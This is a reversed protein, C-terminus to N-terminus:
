HAEAEYREPHAIIDNATDLFESEIGREGLLQIAVHQQSAGPKLYYDYKLRGNDGLYANVHMNQFKEPLHSALLLPKTYHTTSINITHPPAAVSKLYGYTGAEGEVPNTSNFIEDMIALSFQGHPLEKIRDMLEIARVSEAQFSSLGAAVEASIDMHTHILSLPTLTASAAPAIGFTQALLASIAIGEIATSKGAANPGTVLMNQPKGHGLQVSSPIAIKAPLHPNWFNQLNILPTDAREFQVFRLTNGSYDPKKILDSIAVWTDIEGVAQSIELLSNKNERLLNFGEKYAGMSMTYYSFTGPTHSPSGRLIETTKRIGPSSELQNFGHFSSLAQTFTPHKELLDAIDKAHNLARGPRRAREMLFTYANRQLTMLENASYILLAQYAIVVGTYALILTRDGETTLQHWARRYITPMLRLAERTNQTQEYGRLFAAAMSSGVVILPQLVAVTGAGFEGLRRSAELWYRHKIPVVSSTQKEIAEFHHTNIIDAPDYFAILGEEDAAYGRLHNTLKRCLDPHDLLYQLAAQRQELNNIDETPSILTKALMIEGIVSAPEGLQNVLSREPTLTTGSLLRLDKVAHSTLISNSHDGPTQTLAELMIERKLRDSLIIDPLGTQKNLTNDYAPRSVAPYAEPLRHLITEYTNNIKLDALCTFSLTLGLIMTSSRRTKKYSPTGKIFKRM